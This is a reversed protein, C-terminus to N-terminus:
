LIERRDVEPSNAPESERPWREAAWATVTELSQSYLGFLADM